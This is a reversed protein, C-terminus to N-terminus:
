GEARRSPPPTPFNNLFEEFYDLRVVDIIFPKSSFWSAIENLGHAPIVEPKAMEAEFFLSVHNTEQVQLEPDYWAEFLKGEFVIIPYLMHSQTTSDKQRMYFFLSSLVQEIAHDITGSEKTNNPNVFGVFYYSCINRKYYHSKKFLGQKKIWDYISLETNELHNPNLTLINTNEKNQRFFVWNANQKKCEIILNDWCDGFFSSKRIAFVDIERFRENDELKYRPANKVFWGNKNLINSVKLSVPHGTSEIEKKLKEIIDDTM